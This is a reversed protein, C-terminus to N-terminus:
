QRSPLLMKVASSAKKNTQALQLIPHRVRCRARNSQQIKVLKVPGHINGKNPTRGVTCATFTFSFLYLIYYIYIFFTFMRHGM